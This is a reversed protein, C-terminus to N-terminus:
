IQVVQRTAPAKVIKTQLYADLKKPNKIYTTDVDWRGVCDVFVHGYNFIRGHLSQKISTYTVGLFVSQQKRTSFIGGSYIIYKDDYFEIRYKKVKIIRFILIFIPIIFICSLIRWFSIVSFVSRTVVLNPKM